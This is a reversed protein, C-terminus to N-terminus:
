IALAEEVAREELWAKGDAMYRRSATQGLARHLQDLIKDYERRETIDRQLARRSASEDISGLLQAARQMILGDRANNALIAAAVLHQM